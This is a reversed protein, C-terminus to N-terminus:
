AQHTHANRAEMYQRAQEQTVEVLSGQRVVAFITEARKWSLQQRIQYCEGEKLDFWYFVGRGGTGKADLYSKHGKIERKTPIGAHNVGTVIKVFPKRGLLSKCMRVNDPSMHLKGKRWLHLKERHDDGISELKITLDPM